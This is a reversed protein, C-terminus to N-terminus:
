IIHRTAHTETYKKYAAICEDEKIRMIRSDEKEKDKFGCLHLMGHFIVRLLEDAVPVGFSNANEKVREYSIYIEGVIQSTNGPEGLDFTLIDTLTDHDLFRQNMDLLYADTCFIYTLSVRKVTSKYVRIQQDIFGACMKKGIFGTKIEHEQFRAPM